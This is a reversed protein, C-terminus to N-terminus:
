WTYVTEWRKEQGPELDVHLKPEISFVRHNMWVQLEQYPYNGEAQYISRGHIHLLRQKNDQADSMDWQLCVGDADLNMTSFVAEVPSCNQMQPDDRKLKGGRNMQLIAQPQVKEIPLFVHSYWLTNWRADGTNKLAHTVVLNSGTLAIKKTYHYRIHALEAAQIFTLSDPLKLVETYAKQAVPHEDWNSYPKDSIKIEAGVGIKLFCEGRTAEEYGLPIEFEDPFGNGQFPHFVASPQGLVQEDHKKIIIQTIYGCHSFRTHLHLDAPENPDCVEICLESNELLLAM